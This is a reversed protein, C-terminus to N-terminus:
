DKFIKLRNGDVWWDQKWRSSAGTIRNHPVSSFTKCRLLSAFWDDLLSSVCMMLWLYTFLTRYTNRQESYGFLSSCPMTCKLKVLETCNQSLGVTHSVQWCSERIDYLLQTNEIKGKWLGKCSGRRGMIDTKDVELSVRPSFHSCCSLLNSHLESLRAGM